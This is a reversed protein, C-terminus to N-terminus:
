LNISKLLRNYLYLDPSVSSKPNIVLGFSIKSPIILLLNFSLLLKSDSEQFMPFPLLLDPCFFFCIRIKM